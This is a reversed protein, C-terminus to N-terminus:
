RDDFASVCVQWLERASGLELRSLIARVHTKVTESSIGHVRAIEAYSHGLLLNPVLRAQGASLEGREVIIKTMRELFIPRQAEVEGAAAGSSDGAVVMDIWSQAERGVEEPDLWERLVQTRRIAGNLARTYKDPSFPKRLLAFVGQAVALEAAQAINSGSTFVVACPTPPLRLEPLLALGLGDSLQDAVVAARFDAGPQRRAARAQAINEVAVVQHGIRRTVRAIAERDFGSADVVLVQAAAANVRDDYM